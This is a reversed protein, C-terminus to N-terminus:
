KKDKCGNCDTKKEIIHRLLSYCGKELDLADKFTCWEPKLYKIPQESRIVELYEKNSIEHFYKM